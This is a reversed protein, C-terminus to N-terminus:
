VCLGKRTRASRCNHGLGYKVPFEDMWALKEKKILRLVEYCSQGM